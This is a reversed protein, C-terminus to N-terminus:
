SGYAARQINAERITRQQISREIVAGDLYITTSIPIEASFSTSGAGPTGPAAVGPAATPGTLQPMSFVNNFQGRIDTLASRTQDVMSNLMDPWISHTAIEEQAKRLKEIINDVANSIDDVMQNFSARTSAEMLSMTNAWDAYMAAASKQIAAVLDAITTKTNAVMTQISTVLSNWAKTADAIADSVTKILGAMFSAGAQVVGQVVSFMLQFGTSMVSSILSIGTSIITQWTMFLTGILDGITAGFSSVVAVMADWMDTWMSHGVLWNYFADFTDHLWTLFEGIATMMARIPPAILDAAEKFAQGLMKIYPAVDRIVTALIKLPEVLLGIVDRLKIGEGGTGGFASIIEGLAEGLPQLAGWLDKLSSWLDQLAPVLETKLADWLANFFPQLGAFADQLAKTASQVEPMKGVQTFWAQMADVGKGFQDVVPIMGEALNALAPLLIKGVKEGLDATANKLREQIGTYTEATAQAEGGYQKNVQALVGAFDGASLKSAEFKIGMTGVITTLQAADITGTKYAAELEAMLDKVPLMKGHADQFSLGAAGM